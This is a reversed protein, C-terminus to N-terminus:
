ILQNVDETENLLEFAKIFLDNSRTSTRSSYVYQKVAAEVRKIKVFHQQDQSLAFPISDLLVESFGVMRSGLAEDVTQLWFDAKEATSADFVDLLLQWSLNTRSWL